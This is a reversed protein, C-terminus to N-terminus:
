LPLSQLFLPVSYSNCLTIHSNKQHITYTAAAYVKFDSWKAPSTELRFTYNLVTLLLNSQSIHLFFFIPLAKSM